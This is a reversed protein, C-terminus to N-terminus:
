DRAVPSVSLIWKNYFTLSISFCYYFAVLGVTQLLEVLVSM